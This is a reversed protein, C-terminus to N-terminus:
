SSIRELWGRRFVPLLLLLAPILFWRGQDRWVPMDNQLNASFQQGGSTSQLWQMLDTSTDSFPIVSGRGARALRLFESSPTKDALVPMVSTHINNRALIQAEDVAVATPPSATLVLIEGRQFGAQTVLKGAQQLATDLRQGKVPLTDITLSSLLADITQGDDTLPSVIFPEGSYVVLGFQGANRPTLLDHLKFKARSLRDPQLDNTLMAESMDLVLVRPLMQKYTPVPFRSWTPGALSFIMLLASGFLLLLSPIRRSQGHKQMLHALLHSDCVEHWAQLAPKQRLMFWALGVLPVCALLWFPRIFHFETM